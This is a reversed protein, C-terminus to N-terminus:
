KGTLPTKPILKYKEEAQKLLLRVQKRHERREKPTIDHYDAADCHRSAQAFLGGIENWLKTFQKRTM